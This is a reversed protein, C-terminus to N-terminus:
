PSKKKDDILLQVRYGLFNRKKAACYGLRADPDVLSCSTQLVAFVSPFFLPAECDQPDSILSFFQELYDRFAIFEEAEAAAQFRKRFNSFTPESPLKVDSSVAQQLSLHKKKKLYKSVKAYSLFGGLEYLVFMNLCALRKKVHEPFSTKYGLCGILKKALFQYREDEILVRAMSDDLKVERNAKALNVFAVIPASDITVSSFDILGCDVLHDRLSNFIEELLEITLRERKFHSFTQHSPVKDFGLAEAVHPNRLLHRELERDSMNKNLKAFLIAKFVAVPSYPQMGGMGPEWEYLAKLKEVFPQLILDFPLSFFTKTEVRAGNEDHVTFIKDWALHLGHSELYPSEMSLTMYLSTYYEYM